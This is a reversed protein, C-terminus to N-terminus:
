EAPFFEVRVNDVSLSSVPHHFLYIRSVGVSPDVVTGESALKSPLEKSTWGGDVLEYYM